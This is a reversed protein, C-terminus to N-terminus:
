YGGSNFITLVSAALAPVDALARVMDNLHTCTSAGTFTDRVHAPLTSLEVGALRSTGAAAAPCEPWPLVHPDATILRIHRPHPPLRSTISMCITERGAADAHSDRFHADIGVKGPEALSM